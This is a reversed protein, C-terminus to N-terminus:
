AGPNLLVLAALIQALGASQRRDPREGFCVLSVATVLLITGVSYLPYVVFSPLAELARLLLYSSFYNPVGVLLGAALEAPLLRRGTRRQELAALAASLLAATVFLWFFYLADEGRSGLREFVKAMADGGGCSLLTLLLLGPRSARREGGRHMLRFACLVLVIGAIQGASPREGFCLIGAALSVLLGLKSFAASLAAGNERISSQMCVLGAVFLVGGLVGLVRTLGSGAAILARDPVFLLSLAICTVYNGLIVGFRNGKQDRLMRLVVAMAASSAVALVLSRM